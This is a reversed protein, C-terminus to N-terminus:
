SIIEFVHSLGIHKEFPSKRSKIHYGLFQIRYRGLPTSPDIKWSFDYVNWRSRMIKNFPSSTSKSQPPKSLQLYILINTAGYWNFKKYIKNGFEGHTGIKTSFM